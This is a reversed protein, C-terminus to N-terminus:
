LEVWHPIKQSSVLAVCLIVFSLEDLQEIGEKFHLQKEAKKRKKDYIWYSPQDFTYSKNKWEFHCPFYCGMQYELAKAKCLASLLIERKATIASCASKRTYSM